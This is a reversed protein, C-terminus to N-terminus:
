GRLTKLYGLLLAVASGDLAIERTVGKETIVAEAKFRAPWARLEIRLPADDKKPAPGKGDVLEADHIKGDIM